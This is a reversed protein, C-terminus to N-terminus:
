TDWLSLFEKQAQEPSMKGQLVDPHATIKFVKAIDEL